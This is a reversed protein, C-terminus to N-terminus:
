DSGIMEWDGCSFGMARDQPGQEEDNVDKRKVVDERFVVNLEVAVQCGAGCRWQAQSGGGM